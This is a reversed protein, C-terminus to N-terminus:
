VVDSIGENTERKGLDEMWRESGSEIMRSGVDLIVRSLAGQVVSRSWRGQLDLLPIVLLM